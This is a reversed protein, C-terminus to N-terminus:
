DFEDYGDLQDLNIYLTHKVATVVGAELQYQELYYPHDTQGIHSPLPFGAHELRELGKMYTTEVPLMNLVGNAPEVVQGITAEPLKLKELGDPASAEAPLVSGIWYQFTGYPSFVLMYTRNPTTTQADLAAFHGAQEFEDWCSAFTGMQDTDETMYVQGVFSLAPQKLLETM